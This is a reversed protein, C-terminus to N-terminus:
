KGGGETLTVIRDVAGADFKEVKGDPWHIELADVSAADGLGFHLRQDSSSLYSGGSIVDARQRMKGTTVYAAAGIADKPSHSTGILKLELWHHQDANVNKLLVPHKDEVNIVADVKGNNFLDGAALGRAPIVLALGTGEVPPVAEFKKGEVNRYLTPREAWSTGWPHQDVQPYVHGNVALLDKWGDNDYDVFADGWGLFPISMEAIGMQYSVDTFNADGDNHYLPKYDDSFTTNYVDLLGNNEYDGIAIGMTATERGAENLAYGSAYSVDEFTGDGKNLYLYNPTSDDGVLLDPKGDNNIDVFVTSLGFYGPADAVGAKVSVDTFTGDGNNHFLHDPEGKLGHPGCNVAEGRFSCFAFSIGGEGSVPLHDRDFHVYGAVFLDLKGDGDYDGWTAGSSWNGLTVGAKEGVDTFTGDHNNHYLRNKGYNSVFMDPWGDNDYDAVAVGFGWRDNAVGAKATVDTFTGDHNNHFLAAHPSTEKGDLANFTSGNVLYIDLWGDNDYDILGVGSGNTELIFRKDANGMHHTWSTIGAKESIDQFVVPGSAVFGGATIPRQHNDYQAPHAGGTTAGGSAPAQAGENPKTASQAFSSSSGAIAATSLLVSLALRLRTEMFM